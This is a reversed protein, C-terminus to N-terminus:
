EYSRVLRDLLRVGWGTAGKPSTGKAKDSWAMGAIDLHAWATDKVFRKLFQAGVISGSTGDGINKMDAITSNIMKDYADSMPFQWVTEGEEAGAASIAAALKEDNAFLGANEHGLATIIAGTLTALDVMISPSFRKETYSLVDALVLRGEADTNLVEITQGDYAKVIDGPRQAAGDPMNEVLGVVGVVNARARRKAVAIMAGVVAASGAMDWKMDEMSKAPKLSLGGSDFTVGKGVLAIPKSKKAGGNWELIAIRARHPSGLGVGLLAGMGLKALQKDDLIEVSLGAIKLRELAACYSIPNLVNPPESVLDKTFEIAEVLSEREAWAAKASKVVAADSSTITISTLNPQEEPKIKTRYKDFRYSRLAAGLALEAAIEALSLGPKEKGSELSAAVSDLDIEIASSNGGLGRAAINAGIEGVKARTLSAVKGMGFIMLSSASDGGKSTPLIVELEDGMKGKFRHHALARVIIGGSEKDWEAVIPSLVPETKAASKSSVEAEAETVALATVGNKNKTPASFNIKM